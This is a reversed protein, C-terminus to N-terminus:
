KRIPYTLNEDHWTTGYNIRSVTQSNVQCQEGIEKFTLNTNQLMEKIKKVKKQMQNEKRLPYNENKDYHNKGINIMTVFSRKLGFMKGIEKQSLTSNKLYEKVKEVRKKQLISEKRLPYTLESNKWSSGENIHRIVDRSVGLEEIIIKLPRLDNLLKEQVEKAKEKTITTHPNDKGKLIPPEEGGEAINYGNPTKSNFERIYDKEKQNYDEFYGIIELSFNEKGYEQIAIDILSNDLKKRYCHEKFRKEPNTSQGIYVKGNINNIIKYIYKGM